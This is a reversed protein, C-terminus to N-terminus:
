GDAGARATVTNEKVNKCSVDARMGMAEFGVHAFSPRYDM